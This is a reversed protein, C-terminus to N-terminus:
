TLGETGKLEAIKYLAEELHVDMGMYRQIENTNKLHKAIIGKKAADSTSYVM